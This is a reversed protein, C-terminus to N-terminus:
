SMYDGDDNSAQTAPAPSPEQGGTEIVDDDDLDNISIAM